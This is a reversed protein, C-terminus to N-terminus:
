NEAGLRKITEMDLGTIDCILELPVGKALANRAAVVMGEERAEEQWVEKADDWNWETILMNTVETSHEELFEKLIDHERCYKIAAKMAEAKDGIEREIERVKAIFASYEALKKCRRAIDGNRGENINIVQVELELAPIPKEPLGLAQPKEFLDSLRLIDKDPYPAAGNYLV